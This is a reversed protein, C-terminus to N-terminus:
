DIFVGILREPEESPRTFWINEPTMALQHLSEFARFHIREFWQPGINRRQLKDSIHELRRKHMTSDFALRSSFPRIRFVSFTSFCCLRIERRPHTFSDRKILNRTSNMSRRKVECANKLLVRANRNM